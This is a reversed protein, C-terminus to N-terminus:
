ARTNLCTHIPDLPAAPASCEIDNFVILYGLLTPIGTAWFETTRYGPKSM